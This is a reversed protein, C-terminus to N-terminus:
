KQSEADRVVAFRETLINGATQRMGQYVWVTGTTGDVILLDPFPQSARGGPRAILRFRGPEKGDGASGEIPIPVFWSTRKTPDSWNRNEFRWVRGTATDFKLLYSDSVIARAGDTHLTLDREVLVYREDTPPTQAAAPACFVSLAICLIGALKRM